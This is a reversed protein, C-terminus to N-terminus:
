TGAPLITRCIEETPKLAVSTATLADCAFTATESVASAVWNCSTTTVASPMEFCDLFSPYATVVTLLSANLTALSVLTPLERAPRTAPKFTAPVLEPGWPVTFSRRLPFGLIFPEPAGRKTILPIGISLVWRPLAPSHPPPSAPSPMPLRFGSSTSDMVTSFPCDADANYPALAELPTIKIVVFVPLFFSKETSYLM